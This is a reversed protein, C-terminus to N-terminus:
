IPSTRIKADVEARRAPVGGVAAEERDGLVVREEVQDARGVAAVALLGERQGVQAPPQRDARAGAGTEGRPLEAFRAADLGDRQERRLERRVVVGLVGRRERRVRRM